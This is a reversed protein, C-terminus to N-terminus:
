MTKLIELLEAQSRGAGSSIAGASLDFDSTGFGATGGMPNQTLGPFNVGFQKKIDNLTDQPTKLRRQGTLPDRITEPTAEMGFEGTPTIDLIGGGVPANTYNSLQEPTLQQDVIPANVISTGAPPEGLGAIQKAVIAMTIGLAVFSATIAILEAGLGAFLGGGSGFLQAPRRLFRSLDKMTNKMEQGDVPNAGGGGAIGGSASANILRLEAKLQAAM